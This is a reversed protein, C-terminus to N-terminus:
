GGIRSGFIKEGIMRMLMPMSSDAYAKQIDAKAVRTGLYTKGNPDSAIRICEEKAKENWWSPLYNIPCRQAKALYSEFHSIPLGAERNEAYIGVRKGDWVCEDDCRLRYLDIIRRYIEAQSQGEFLNLSGNFIAQLSASPSNSTASRSTNGNLPTTPSLTMTSLDLHSGFLPKNGLDFGLGAAAAFPSAHGQASQQTSQTDQPGSGNNTEPHSSQDKQAKSKKKKKKKKKAKSSNSQMPQDTALATPEIIDSQSTTSPASQPDPSALGATTRVGNVKIPEPCTLETKNVAKDLMALLIAQSEITNNSDGIYGIFGKETYREFIVPSELKVPDNVIYLQCHESARSIHQAKVNYTTFLPTKFVDSFMDNLSFDQRMYAGLKWTLGFERQFISKTSPAKLARSFNLCMIVTGGQKAYSSVKKIVIAYDKDCIGSDVLLVVKPKVPTDFAALSEDITKAEKVTYMSAIHNHFDQHFEHHTYYGDTTHIILIDSM